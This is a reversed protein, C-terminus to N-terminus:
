YNPVTIITITDSYAGTPTNGSARAKHVLTIVHYDAPSPYSALTEPDRKYGGVKNGSQNYRPAINSEQSWAQVGYGPEKQLNTTDNYKYDASGILFKDKSNYLGPSEGNGQDNILIEYGHPNNTLVTLVIDPSSTHIVTPSINWGSAFVTSNASIGSEIKTPSIFISITPEVSGNVTVTDQDSITTARASHFLSFIILTILVFIVSFFLHRKVGKM